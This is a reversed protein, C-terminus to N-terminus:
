PLKEYLMERLGALAAHDGIFLCSVDVSLNLDFALTHCLCSEFETLGLVQKGM